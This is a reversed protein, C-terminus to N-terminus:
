GDQITFGHILVIDQLGEVGVEIGKVTEVAVLVLGVCDFGLQAM